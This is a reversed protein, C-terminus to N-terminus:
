RKARITASKNAAYRMCIFPYINIKEYAIKIKKRYLIIYDHNSLLSKTYPDYAHVWGYLSDNKSDYKLVGRIMLWYAGLDHNHTIFENEIIQLRNEGAFGIWKKQSSWTTDQYAVISTGKAEYKDHDVTISYYFPSINGKKLIGGEWTGNYNQGVLQTAIFFM